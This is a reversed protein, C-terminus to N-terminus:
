QEGGTAEAVAARLEDWAAQMNEFQETIEAPERAIACAESVALLRRCAAVLRANLTSNM